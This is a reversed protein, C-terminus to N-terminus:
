DKRHHIPTSPFLGSGRCAPGFTSDPEPLGPRRRYAPRHARSGNGPAPVASGRHHLRSLVPMQERFPHRAQWFANPDDARAARRLISGFAVIKDATTALLAPMDTAALRHVRDLTQESSTHPNHMTHHEAELVRIIRLTDAGLLSTVLPDLQDPPALEPADYLLVAALLTPSAAPHHRGLVVAVRVAHALAPAGDISHGSCWHWALQLASTVTPHRPPSLITM